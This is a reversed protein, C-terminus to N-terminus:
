SSWDAALGRWREATPAFQGKRTRLLEESPPIIWTMIMGSVRWGGAGRAYEDQYHGLAGRNSFSWLGRASDPGTLEIIPMQAVHVHLEGTLSARLRDVFADPGPYDGSGVSFTADDTFLGRLAEWEQADLLLCYRAKLQKIAEIDALQGVDPM